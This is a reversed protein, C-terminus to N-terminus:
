GNKEEPRPAARRLKWYARWYDDEKLNSYDFTVDGNDNYVVDSFPKLVAELVAVRAALADRDAELKKIAPILKDWEANRQALEAALAAERKTSM